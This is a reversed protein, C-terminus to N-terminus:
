LFCKLEMFLYLEAFFYIQHFAACYRTAFKLSECSNIQFKILNGITTHFFKKTCSAYYCLVANKKDLINTTCKKM